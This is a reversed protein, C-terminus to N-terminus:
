NFAFAAFMNRVIYENITTQFVFFIFGIGSTIKEDINSFKFQLIIRLFRVSLACIFTIVALELYMEIFIRIFTGYRLM